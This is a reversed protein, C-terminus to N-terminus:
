CGRCIGKLKKALADDLEKYKRDPDSLQQQDQPIEAARPQRHGTPAERTPNTQAVASSCSFGVIFGLSVFGVARMNQAKSSPALDQARSDVAARAPGRVSNELRM